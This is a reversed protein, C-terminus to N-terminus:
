FCHNVEICRRDARLLKLTFLVSLATGTIWGIPWAYWIGVAGWFRSLLFAFGVRLMLDAFTGTLLQRMAGLGRLVGDCVIKISVIGYFPIVIRIFQEGTILATGGDAKMFQLILSHHFILYASLICVGFGFSLLLGVKLGSKIREPKKAGVNQATYSAMGKDFAMLGAIAMNNLKIAAAYGASVSSGFSNVIGQILIGGLSVVFQQLTIPLAIQLMDKFVIVSFIPVGVGCEQVRHFCGLRKTLLALAALGGVCQCLFTAWAVGAIGMQFRCVFLIDLLINLLSSFTLFFFPTKADGLAAFVGLLIQYLFLFVLGATYINLYLRSDNMVDAPTRILRLLAVAGILGAATLLACLIGSGILATAVASRVEERNGAGFLRSVVVSCGMTCGFALAQYVLTIQYTNGVAALAGEGIFRGAVLSDTVVYLQQVIVSFFLPLCFQLLLKGPSGITLDRNM